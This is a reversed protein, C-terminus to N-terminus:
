STAFFASLSKRHNGDPVMRSGFVFQQILDTVELEADAPQSSAEVSLNLFHLAEDPLKGLRSWLNQGADSFM